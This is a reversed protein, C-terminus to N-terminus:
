PLIQRNYLSVHDPMTVPTWTACRQWFHALPRGEALLFFLAEPPLNEQPLGWLSSLLAHQVIKVVGSFTIM